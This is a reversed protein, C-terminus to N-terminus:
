VEYIVVQCLFLVNVPFFWIKLSYRIIDQVDYRPAFVNREKHDYAMSYINGNQNTIIRVVGTELNIEKVNIKTSFLLM